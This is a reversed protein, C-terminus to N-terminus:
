QCSCIGGIAIAIVNVITTSDFRLWNMVIMM